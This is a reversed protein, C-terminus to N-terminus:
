VMSHFTCLSDQNVDRTSLRSTAVCKMDMISDSDDGLLDCSLDRDSPHYVSPLDEGSLGLQGDEM